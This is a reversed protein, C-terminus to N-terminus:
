RVVRHVLANGGCPFPKPLASDQEAMMVLAVLHDTEGVVSAVRIPQRLDRGAGIRAVHDEAAHVEHRFASIHEAVRPLLNDQGVQVGAAGHCVHGLDALDFVAPLRQLAHTEAFISTM